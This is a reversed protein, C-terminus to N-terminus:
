KFGFILRPKATDELFAVFAVFRLSVLFVMIILFAVSAVFEVFAYAHLNIDAQDVRFQRLKNSKYPM